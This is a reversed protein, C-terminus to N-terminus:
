IRIVHATVEMCKIVTAPLKSEYEKFLSTRRAVNLITIGLKTQHCPCPLTSALLTFQAFAPDSEAKTEFCQM